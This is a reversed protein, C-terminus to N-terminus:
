KIEPVPFLIGGFLLYAWLLTWIINFLQAAIFALAPRGGETKVLDAFRAELGISVFALAFWITRLGSFVGSVNKTITTPVLFSFVLSAAIFGLVFKPFREWVISLGPKEAGEKAAGKRYTWWLAIFFAAIGILVNQSFKVIVGAKVAKPGVQEAAASVSATTDLTGGLWAGGVIESLHLLKILWPQVVLMPIAVLLVLTTVYSLKKKDGKIAGSAVIAASVGCISVASALIVGFEDDVKLKRCVWLAMFWVASVVLVSQLLGPLGAKIIDTFLISSGYIVLGTKIFFESRAAEKLWVPITTLNGILLGLLLAFIVYELGYYNIVKNGAIILAVIALVYILLFGTAYKKINGGSLGIAAGSLVLFLLGTQVIVLMNKLSLVKHVLDNSNEWQFSPLQLKFGTVWTTLSTIAVIIVGAILVAWIDETVNGLLAKKTIPESAAENTTINEVNANQYSM